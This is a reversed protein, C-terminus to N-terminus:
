TDLTTNSTTFVESTTWRLSAMEQDIWSRLRKLLLANEDMPFRLSDCINCRWYLHFIFITRPFYFYIHTTLCVRIAKLFENICVSGSNDVDVASFLARCGEENVKVGSEDIGKRFEDYGLSRSGDDDM